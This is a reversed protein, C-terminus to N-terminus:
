FSELPNVKYIINEDDSIDGNKQRIVFGNIEFKVAFCRTNYETLILVTM